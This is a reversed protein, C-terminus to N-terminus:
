PWLLAAPVLADAYQADARYLGRPEPWGPPPWNELVKPETYADIYCFHGRFRIDLRIYQGAYHEEAYRRIRAATRTKVADPIKVGGSGPDFVWQKAPM